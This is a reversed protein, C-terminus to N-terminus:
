DNVPIERRKVMIGHVKGTSAYACWRQFIRAEKAGRSAGDLYNIDDM